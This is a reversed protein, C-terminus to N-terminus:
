IRSSFDYPLVSSDGLFEDPSRSTLGSNLLGREFLLNAFLCTVTVKFSRRMDLIDILLSLRDTLLSSFIILIILVNDLSAKSIKETPFTQLKSYCCLIRFIYRSLMYSSLFCSFKEEFSISVISIQMSCSFSFISSRAPQM